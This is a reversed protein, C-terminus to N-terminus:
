RAPQDAGAADGMPGTQAPALAGAFAKWRHVRADTIPHELRRAGGSAMHRPQEWPRFCPAEPTLECAALLEGITDTPSRVLDEYAVTHMRAGPGQAQWANLVRSCTRSVRGIEDLDYAYPHTGSFWQTYISLATDLPHRRCVVIPAEPVLRHLLGLHAFNGPLKDTVVRAGPYRSALRRLVHRRLDALDERGLHRLGDPYGADPFCRTLDGLLDPITTDEGGQRVGSHAALIHEVLSTGSRPMGVIFVPRPSDPVADAVPETRWAACVEPVRELEATLATVDFAFGRRVRKNAAHWVAMATEPADGAAHLSGLLFLFGTREDTSLIGRELVTEV